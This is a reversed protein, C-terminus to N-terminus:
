TCRRSRGPPSDALTAVPHGDARAADAPPRASGAGGIHRANDLLIQVCTFTPQGCRTPRRRARAREMVLHSTPSQGRSAVIFEQDDLWLFVHHEGSPRISGAVRVHEDMMTQREAESCTGPARRSSRTCSCTARGSPQIVLRSAARSRRFEYISRRPMALYSYPSTLYAGLRHSPRPRCPWLADLNRGGAVALLRMDVGSGVLGYSAAAAPRRLERHGPRVRDRARRPEASLRRWAHRPM